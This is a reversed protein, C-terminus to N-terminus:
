RICWKPGLLVSFPKQSKWRHLIRVAIKDFIRHKEPLIDIVVPVLKAFRRFCVHM